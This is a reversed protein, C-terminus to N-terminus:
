QRPPFFLNVVRSYLVLESKNRKAYSSAIFYIDEIIQKRITVTFEEIRRDFYEKFLDFAEEAKMESDVLKKLQTYMVEEVSLSSDLQIWNNQIVDIVSRKEQIVFKGDAIGMAYYLISLNVYFDQNSPASIKEDM